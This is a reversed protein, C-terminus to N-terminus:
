PYSVFPGMGVGQPFFVSVRTGKLKIERRQRQGNKDNLRNIVKKRLDLIVLVELGPHHRKWEPNIGLVNTEIGTAKNIKPAELDKKSGM